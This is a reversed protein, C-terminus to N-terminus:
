HGFWAEALAPIETPGGLRRHYWSLNSYRHLMAMAFLRRPSTSSGSARLVEALVAREGASVFLGVSAFEYDIPGVWSPEFDFLGSLRVGTATPEVLLHERMVETHLWGMSGASTDSGGVYVELGELLSDPCGRRRQDDILSPIRADQWAQWDVRQVVTPAPTAHLTALCEGLQTALSLRDKRALEPWADVLERGPLRTMLIWQWGELEGSDLVQPTPIPLAGRLSQLAALETNSLARDQPAMMKVVVRENLGIMASGRQPPVLPSELGLTETLLALVAAVAASDDMLADLSDNDIVDRLRGREDM